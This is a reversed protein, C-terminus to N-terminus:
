GRGHELWVVVAGTRSNVGLKAFVSRMHKRVTEESCPPDLNAAIEKNALGQAALALVQVERPTLRETPFAPM